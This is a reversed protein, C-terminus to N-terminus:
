FRLLCDQEENLHSILLHSQNTVQSAVCSAVKTDKKIGTIRSLAGEESRVGAKNSFYLIVQNDLPFAITMLPVQTM